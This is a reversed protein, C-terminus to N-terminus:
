NQGFQSLLKDFNANPPFADNIASEVKEIERKKSDIQEIRNKTFHKVTTREGNEDVSYTIDDPNNLKNYEKQLEERKQLAKVMAGERRKMEIEAFQNVVSDYVENSESRNKILEKVDKQLTEAKNKKKSM